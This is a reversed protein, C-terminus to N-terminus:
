AISRLMLGVQAARDWSQADGRVVIREREAYGRILPISHPDAALSFRLGRIPSL